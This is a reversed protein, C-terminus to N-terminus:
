APEEATAVAHHDHAHTHPDGAEADEAHHCACPQAEPVAEWRGAAWWRAPVTPPGLSPGGARASSLFAALAGGPTGAGHNPDARPLVVHVGHEGGDRPLGVVVTPTVRHVFALVTVLTDLVPRAAAWGAPTGSVGQVAAGRRAPDLALRLLGVAFLPTAFLDRTLTRDPAGTADFGPDRRAAQEDPTLAHFAPTDLGPFHRVLLDARAADPPMLPAVGAQPLVELGFVGDTGGLWLQAAFPHGACIHLGTLGVRGAAAADMKLLRLAHDIVALAVDM